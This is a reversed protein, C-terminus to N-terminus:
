WLRDGRVRYLDHYQCAEPHTYQDFLSIGSVSSFLRLALRRRHHSVGSEIHVIRIGLKGSDPLVCRNLKGSLLSQAPRPLFSRNYSLFYSSLAVLYFAYTPSRPSVFHFLVSEPRCPSLPTTEHKRESTSAPPIM